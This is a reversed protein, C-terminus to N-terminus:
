TFALRNFLILSQEPLDPSSSGALAVKQNLYETVKTFAGDKSLFLSKYSLLARSSLFNLFTLVPNKLGLFTSLNMCM